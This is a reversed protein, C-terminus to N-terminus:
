YFSMATAAAVLGAGLYTQAAGAASSVTDDETSCNGIQDADTGTAFQATPSKGTSKINYAIAPNWKVSVGTGIAAALQTNSTALSTAFSLVITADSSATATCTTSSTTVATWTISAGDLNADSDALVAADTTWAGCTRADATTGANGIAVLDDDAAYDTTAVDTRGVVHASNAVDFSTDAIKVYLYCNTDDKKAFRIDSACLAVAVVLALIAIRM